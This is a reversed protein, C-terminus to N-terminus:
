FAIGVEARYARPPVFHTGSCTSLFNFLALKNTVNLADFRLTWRVRETHFLNDTGTGINILNRGRVRPPNTDDNETGAAPISVLKTGWNSSPNCTTIPVWPTATQGNCYFGIQAQQDATLGLVSALDPVAGAVIGSDYRWTFAVWPGNKKLQYQLYTTSQFAQDHDIRLVGVNIPASFILGGNEPGFVRARTHGLNLYGSLRKYERFNLRSSFGDMKSRDWEIPFFIATTFLNDLDFANHTYKWFYDADLVFHSGLAQELGANYMNRIGPVLPVSAYAGFVNTALGGAGTASSLVLNENLPTEYTHSYAVRLVTGSPIVHYSLAMRPEPQWGQSIGDYNDIRLGPSLTWNGLTIADQAYFAEERIDAHGHFKFLTGGRTLDYPVLGPKFGGNYTGGQALTLNPTLGLAACASPNLPTPNTDPSGDPNFCVPNYTPDTIGLSFAESLLTHTLQAGIKVNHRGHAYNLDAKLGLNTLTRDQAVTDPQDDFPNQATPYYNVEDHRVFANVSLLTNPGLVRVWGPAINYSRVMQKQDQGSAVEPYTNPVQFWNRAAMVNLHFMNSSNPQYDSRSFINEDNGIDHFPLYEPTDMFRGSRSTNVAFFQGWKKSGFGIDGKLDATGFSGYGSSFSGHPKQGLGSRTVTTVVLSTKDGYEAPVGGYVAEVSQIANLPIQTSFLNGQQDTIPQNDVSLSMQAHDGLSHFFGDSDAVVAPSSLTIIDSLGSAISTTPMKAFLTSDVNTHASPSTEVLPAEAAVTLTTHQAEIALSIELSVPVTSQVTLDRHHRQFGVANVEFHYVNQPINTFQFEGSASTITERRYLTLDNSLSVRANVIAAGSPDTVKGGITGATGLSQGLACPGLM